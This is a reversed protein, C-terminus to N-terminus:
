RDISKLLRLSRVIESRLCEYENQSALEELFVQSKTVGSFARVIKWKILAEDNRHYCSKLPEYIGVVPEYFNIHGITDILESLSNLDKIELQALLQPIAQRGIRVLIRSAIDRPLPYSDKKFETTPVTRHQNSGIKGLCEILPDIAFSGISWLTNSIEIKPYLKKEVKLAKILHTISQKTPHDKLLRAAITREYAIPSELLKTREPLILYEFPQQGGKKVYGRNARSITKHPM